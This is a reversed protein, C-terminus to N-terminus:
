RPDVDIVLRVGAAGEGDQYANLLTHLRTRLEQWGQARAIKLLVRMRYHGRLRPLLPAEPGVMAAGFLPKLQAALQAAAQEARRQDAHRLELAILRSFPPYAQAQRLPLEYAVFDAFPKGLLQLVPHEPQRTQILVQGAKSSRGARGAFQTLLQHATEHARLDPYNLAQDASVVVALTVNEFDLGKTVMQTGVLIDLEGREFKNLLNQIGQKGRTTDLDMRGIRAQPLLQQLQEEMRETGIGERRLTRHDCATCRDVLHDTFGCYHCRLYNEKKHYTLAVDCQPCRPVHGCNDCVLLPAYGRRNKFIIAQEARALTQQLAALVPESFLGHSLQAGYQQRMDVFQLAPSIASGVRQTLEVLTYKGQQANYYTELGPTASGLLVNCPGNEGGIGGAYFVAVDRANYRPNPEQQKFSGDHEEDVVILGLDSWPLLMASRVGIVCRYTGNLVKQWIEVREAANFRSHYVGVQVGLAGRVREIIQKTLAIEPLLYLAQRGQALVTRLLEIYVHTKGSGAVGHLLVPKGPHATFSQGIQALAARQAENLPIPHDTNHQDAIRDIPVDHPAVLGRAVLARLPAAANGVKRAIDAETLKRGQLYAEALLMLVAEQRPARAVANLAAHLGDHSAHPAAIGYLRLTKAKVRPTTTQVLQVLGQAALQNLLKAPQKLQVIQAVQELSLQPEALLAELLLYARDGVDLPIQEASTLVAQVETESEMKLGSPLSAKLAEGESCLYYNALWKYLQLLQPTVVPADDLVDEVPKLARLDTGVPSLLAVVVGAYLRSKGFPVLVRAGVQPTRKYPGALRYSFISKLPLPLLVQAVGQQTAAAHPPAPAQEIGTTIAM